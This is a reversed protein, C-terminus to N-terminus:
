FVISNWPEGQASTVIHAYRHGLEYAMVQLDISGVGLTSM